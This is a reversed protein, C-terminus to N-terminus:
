AEGEMDEDQEDTSFSFSVVSVVKYKLDCDPCEITHDGEEYLGWAEHREIDYDAGCHPCKPKPNMWFSMTNDGNLAALRSM